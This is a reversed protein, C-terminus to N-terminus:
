GVLPITFAAQMRAPRMAEEPGAIDSAAGFHTVPAGSRPSEFPDTAGDVQVILRRWSTAMPASSGACNVPASATHGARWPGESGCRALDVARQGAARRAQLSTPSHRALTPTVQRVRFCRDNPRARAIDLGDRAARGRTASGPAPQTLQVAQLPRYRCGRTRARVDAPHGLGHTRPSGAM